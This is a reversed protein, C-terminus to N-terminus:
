GFCQSGGEVAKEEVQRKWLRVGSFAWDETVLSLMEKRIELKSTPSKRVNGSIQGKVKRM